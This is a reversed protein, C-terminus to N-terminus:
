HYILSFPYCRNGAANGDSCSPQRAIRLEPFSHLLHYIDTNSLATIDRAKFYPVHATFTQVSFVSLFQCRTTQSQKFPFPLLKATKHTKALKLHCPEDFQTALADAPM